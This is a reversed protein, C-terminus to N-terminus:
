SIDAEPYLSVPLLFQKTSFPHLSLLYLDKMCPPYFFFCVVVVFLCCSAWCSQLLFTFQPHKLPKTDSQKRRYDLLSQSLHTHKNNKKTKKKFSQLLLSDKRLEGSAAHSSHRKLRIKLSFSPTWVDSVFFSSLYTLIHTYPPTNAPLRHENLVKDSVDM